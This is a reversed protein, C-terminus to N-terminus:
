ALRGMKRERQNFLMQIGDQPPEPSIRITQTEADYSTHRIFFIEGTNLLKIREGARVRNAPMFGGNKTTVYGRISFTARTPREKHYEIFRRGLYDARDPDGAGLRLFYDRQYEREISGLDALSPNDSSTRYRTEDRENQYQVTVSNFLESSPQEYTLGALEAQSLEIVYEYDDVSRAEFVVRPKGDSTDSRDWVCLGWTNLDADGYSAIKEIVQGAYTPEEVVFPDLILGPEGLLGFDTSLHAGKQNCLLIVDEVLEGQKYTPSTAHRHGAEYTAEVRLNSTHAYDNQDYTDTKQLYVWIEMSRTNGKTFTVSVGSANAPYKGGVVYWEWFGIGGAPFNDMNTIALIINEGSRIVYDFVIRRIYGAPLEYLERYKEARVRNHDGAAVFCQIINDRKNSFFTTQVPDTTLGDPWYCNKIAAIDIWRKRLNREELLVYWGVCQVTVYEDSGNMNKSLTEIRGDYVIEAGDHILVGFSERVVWDAFIDSRKVKFTAVGFGKPWMTEWTIETAYNLAGEPDIVASGNLDYAIVREM